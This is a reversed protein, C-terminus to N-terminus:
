DVATVEIEFEFNYDRRGQWNKFSGDWKKDTHEHQDIVQHKQNGTYRYQQGKDKFFQQKHEDVVVSTADPEAVLQDFIKKKADAYGQNFVEGWNNKVKGSYGGRSNTRYTRLNSPSM